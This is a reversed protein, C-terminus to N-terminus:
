SSQSKQYEQLSEVIPNLEGDIIKEIGHWSKEIRHDTVRDQPFNYTRIKEARKAWGIQTKRKSSLEKEKTSERQELLKSELLAMAYEKNKQQSRSTQVAVVLNTPLYTLRVATKRKNVNQGGPGSSNFFELKIDNPNIHIQTYKPKPLVAVSATSTHVRGSKETEPIRQVRHVGGEYQLKEFAGEGEIEISAEKIGGLDTENLNLVEQRWQNQLAYKAYMDFLNRAFLAAEEGGTGPRIELIIAEPAAEKKTALNELEEELKKRQGQLAALESQALAALEQEEGAALIEENDEIKNKIEQIEEAKKLIKELQNRRKSIEQFKEWQSILEPNELEKTLSDYEERLKKLDIM